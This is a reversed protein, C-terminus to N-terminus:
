RPPWPSSATTKKRKKKNLEEIRAKERAQEAARAALKAQREQENKQAIAALQSRKAEAREASVNFYGKEMMCFKDESESSCQARAM